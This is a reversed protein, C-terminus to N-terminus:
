DTQKKNAGQPGADRPSITATRPPALVARECVTHARKRPHDGDDNENGDGGDADDGGYENEDDEDVNDAKTTPKADDDSGPRRM